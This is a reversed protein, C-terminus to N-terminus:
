QARAEASIARSAREVTMIWRNEGNRMAAKLEIPEERSGSTELPPGLAVESTWPSERSLRGLALDLEGAKLQTLLAEGSGPRWEARAGTRQEINRILASLRADTRLDPDVLGVSFRRSSEIRKSTDAPDRPLADCGALLLLLGILALQKM